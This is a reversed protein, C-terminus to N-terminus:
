NESSEITVNRILCSAPEESLGRIRFALHGSDLPNTDRGEFISEGNVKLWVKDEHRGAEITSFMGTIM